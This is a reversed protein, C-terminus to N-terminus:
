KFIGRKYDQIYYSFIPYITPFIIDSELTYRMLDFFVISPDDTRGQLKFLKFGMNYMQKTEKITLSTNRMQTKQQKKEPISSCKSLFNFSIYNNNSMSIQEKSITEYHLKRLPCNIHCRENLIIEANKKPIKKLIDDNFNDDPHIVYYNYKQSLSKYFSVNRNTAYTTKIVSAHIPIKPYKNSIYDFLLENTVIVGGGVENLIKLITNCQQDKLEEKTIYINSFTLLPTIKRNLSNIIEKEIGKLSFDSDYHNLILRGNNWKSNPSGYMYKIPVTYGTKYFVIDLFKYILKSFLFIGPVNYTADDFLGAKNNKPLFFNTNIM